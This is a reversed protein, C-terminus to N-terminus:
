PVFKFVAGFNSTGGDYTTGYLTGTRDMIVPAYPTQGDGPNGAFTHLVTQTWAGQGGSPPTMEFITGNNSNVGGASTTSYLNFSADMILGAYGPYAGDPGQFHHLVNYQGNSAVSFVSENSTGYLTGANDMLLPCQPAVGAGAPFFLLVSETWKGQGGAPPALSFVTGFDFPGGYQTTGFLTGNANAILAARPAAADNAGGVFSYLITEAWAKKGPAPPSLRFVTGCYVPVNAVICTTAGGSGGESTTGYLNGSADMLLTGDPMSGDAGGKFVHLLKEKWVTKGAAPKILEFATGFGAGGGVTTGYLNGHSDAILGGQPDAGDKTGGKFSHLLKKTWPRNAKAPVVLEFVAGAAASGGATLTGYLNGAADALLGAFPLGGDTGGKFSYLVSESAASLAGPQLVACMGAFACLGSRRM